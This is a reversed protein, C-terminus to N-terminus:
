TTSYQVAIYMARGAFTDIIPPDIVPICSYETGTFKLFIGKERILALDGFDLIVEIIASIWSESLEFTKRM